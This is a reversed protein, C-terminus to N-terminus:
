LGAALRRELDLGAGLGADLGDLVATKIAAMVAPERAAIERAAAMAAGDLRERPVM